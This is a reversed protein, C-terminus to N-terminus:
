SRSAWVEKPRKPESLIVANLLACPPEVKGSIVASSASQPIPSRSTPSCAPKAPVNFEVVSPVSSCPTDFPVVFYCSPPLSLDHATAAVHMTLVSQFLMASPLGEPDNLAGEVESPIEGAPESARM